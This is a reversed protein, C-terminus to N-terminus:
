KKKKSPDDAPNVYTTGLPATTHVEIITEGKCEGYHPEKTPIVFFGGTQVEKLKAADYTPGLGILMTGALVTVREAGPHTHPLFKYDAPCRFRLAVPGKGGADGDLIVLQTDPFQPGTDAWKLDSPAAILTAQEAAHAILAGTVFTGLIIASRCSWSSTRM